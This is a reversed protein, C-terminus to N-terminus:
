LSVTGTTFIDKLNRLLRRGLFRFGLEKREEKRGGEGERGGERKQNRGRKQSL